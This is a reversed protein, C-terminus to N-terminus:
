RFSYHSLSSLWTYCGQRESLQTGLCISLKEGIVLGEYEACNQQLLVADTAVKEGYSKM